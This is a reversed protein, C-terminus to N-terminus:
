RSSNLESDLLNRLLKDRERRGKEGALISEGLEILALLRPSLLFRQPSDDGTLDCFDRLSVAPFRAGSKTTATYDNLISPSITRGCRVSLEDAIQQRSKPCRTMVDSLLRRFAVDSQPPLSGKFNPM